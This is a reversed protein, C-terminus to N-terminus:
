RRVHAMCDPTSRSTLCGGGSMGTSGARMGEVLLWSIFSKSSRSEDSFCLAHSGRFNHGVFERM